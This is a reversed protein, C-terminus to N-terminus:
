RRRLRQLFWRVRNWVARRRLRGPPLVADGAPTSAVVSGSFAAVFHLTEEPSPNWTSHPIGAPVLIADGPGIDFQQGNMSVIGSGSLFVVVEEVEHTHLSHRAGPALWGRLLAVDRAGRAGDVLKLAYLGPEHETPQIDVAKVLM